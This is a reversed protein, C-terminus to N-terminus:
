FDDTQSLTMTTEIESLEDDIYVAQLLELRKLASRAAVVASRIHDTDVEIRISHHQGEKAASLYEPGSCIRIRRQDAEIKM